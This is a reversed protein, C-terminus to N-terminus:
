TSIWEVKQGIVAHIAEFDKDCHLVTKNLCLAIAAVLIDAVSPGRHMSVEALKMQIGLAAKEVDCTISLLELHDIFVSNRTETYDRSNRASFGVELLTVSSVGVLGRSIRNKWTPYDPSARLRHFASTDVIWGELAM